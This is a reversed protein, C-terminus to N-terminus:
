AVKVKQLNLIGKLKVEGDAVTTLTLRHRWHKLVVGAKDAEYTDKGIGHINLANSYRYLELPISMLMHSGTPTTLKTITNTIHDYNFYGTSTPSPIPVAKHIQVNGNLKDTLSIDVAGTNNANPIVLYGGYLDYEGAGPNSVTPTAPAFISFKASDGWGGNSYIVRGGYIAHDELFQIEIYSEGTTTRTITMFPGNGFSGADIDDGRGAFFTTKGPLIRSSITEQKETYESLKYNTVFDTEDASNKPIDCEVIVGCATPARVIYRYATEVYSVRGALRERALINKFEAWEIM